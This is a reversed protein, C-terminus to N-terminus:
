LPTIVGFREVKSKIGKFATSADVNRTFSDDISPTRAIIWVYCTGGKGGSKRLYLEDQSSHGDRFTITNELVGTEMFKEFDKSKVEPNLTVKFVCREKNSLKKTAV